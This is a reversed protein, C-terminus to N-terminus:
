SHRQAEDIAARIREFPECLDVTAGLEVLRERVATERPADTEHPRVRATGITFGAGGDAAEARRVLAVPLGTHPRVQLMSETDTLVVDPAAKAEALLTAGIQRGHLHGHLTPGYLIQQARSVKVPTTCHFEVPRGLVDVLLYGGFVGHAASEVVTLFGFTPGDPRAAGQQEMGHHREVARGASRKGATEQPRKCGDVRGPPWKLPRRCGGRGRGQSTM